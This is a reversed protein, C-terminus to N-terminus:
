VRLDVGFSRGGALTVRGALDAADVRVRPTKGPVKNSEAVVDGAPKDPVDKAGSLDVVLGDVSLKDIHIDGTLAAFVGVDGSLKNVKFRRGSADTLDAGEATFEGGLGASVVAIDGSWGAGKLADLALGRQVEPRTYHWVVVGLASVGLGASAALIRLLRKRSPTM